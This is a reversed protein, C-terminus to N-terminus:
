HAVQLQGHLEYPDALFDVVQLVEVRWFEDVSEQIEVRARAPLQLL